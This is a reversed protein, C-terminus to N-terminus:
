VKKFKTSIAQTGDGLTVVVYDETLIPWIQKLLTFCTFILERIEVEAGESARMEFIHRWARINGTFVMATETENPLCSRAAQNVKKRLDTKREATMIENGSSQMEALLRARENYEAAALDIWREFHGHLAPNGQYERREVFRLLKGSVYRQSLQSFATGARHRVLEHTLSRSVGYILVSASAHEVVSGHGSDKIHEFYNSANENTTRQKGLSMYCLQGGFKTLAEADPLLTPDDLYEGFGFEDLYPGVNDLNTCTQAIVVAGPSRLYRTGAETTFVQAHASPWVMNSQVFKKSM